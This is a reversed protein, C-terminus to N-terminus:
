YGAWERLEKYDEFRVNVQEEFCRAYVVFNDEGHKIGAVFWDHQRAWEKQQYTM